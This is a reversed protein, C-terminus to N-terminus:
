GDRNVADLESADTAGTLRPARRSRAADPQERRAEPVGQAPPVRGDSPQHVAAVRDRRQLPGRGRSVRHPGRARHAGRPHRRAARAQEGTAVLEQRARAAFAQAGVADFLDLAARLPIRADRRRRMRRLWEGYVLQTTALEIAASIPSLLSIAEQFLQDAADDDALLARSRAIVAAARPSPSRGVRDLLRDLAAIATVRDDARVAAEVLIPLSVSGFWMTDREFVGRLIAVTEEYHGLSIELVALVVRAGDLDLGHGRERADQERLLVATRTREDDGRLAHLLLEGVGPTGVMGRTGVLSLIDESEAIAAEASRIRGALLEGVAVLQLAQPLTTMSRTQRSSDVWTRTATAWAADDFTDGAAFVELALATNVRRMSAPLDLGGQEDIEDAFARVASALSPNGADGGALRRATALVLQEIPLVLQAESLLRVVAAAVDRDLDGGALSGAFMASDVVVVLVDLTRASDYGDMAAVARAFTRLAARGAGSGIAIVGRTWEIDVRRDSDRVRALAQDFLPQAAAANGVGVRLRVAELWRDVAAAPDPTPEAALSYYQSAAQAGGRFRVRVAADELAQAVHEDPETTAAALHFARRDLDDTALLADALTRHARRREAPSAGHYVASRILPHRFTLRPAFTALSSAEIAAVAGDWDIAQADAARRLLTPDGHRETAGLLLLSRANAPLLRALEAFRDQVSAGVPLPEPLPVEGRLQEPTLEAACEKIALANGDTEAVVRAAVDGAVSGGALHALLDRAETDCLGDLRLEPLGLFATTAGSASDRVAILMSIRDAHLRRALFAVLQASADDLWQADDLVFLLPAAAAAQGLLTLVALGVMLVNPPEGTTLGFVIEIAARQPEPLAPLGGLFPVILQHLGAFDLAIESEVGTVRTVDFDPAQEIAYDLLASKGIGAVGRVVVVGSLGRRADDVIRDIVACEAKRGVLVSRRYGRVAETEM